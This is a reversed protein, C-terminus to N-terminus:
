RPGDGFPIFAMPHRMSKNKESFREPDFKSPDPYLEPDNHIAYVPVFTLTGKKIILHSKPIEYDRSAVRLLLSVPGSLRLTELLIIQM